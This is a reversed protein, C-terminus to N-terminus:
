LKCACIYKICKLGKWVPSGSSLGGGGGGDGREEIVTM